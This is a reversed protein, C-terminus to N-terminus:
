ALERAYRDLAEVLASRIGPESASHGADPVIVLDSRPWAHHLQWANELPCILDYRGHVIVGPIDALKGADRLL